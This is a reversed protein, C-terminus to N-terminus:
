RIAPAPSAPDRVVVMVEGPKMLDLDRHAAEEIANPDHKLRDALEALRLNEARLAGLQARLAAIDRHARLRALYGTEGVLANVMLVASSVVIVYTLFRRRRNQIEQRTKPLRRNTGRAPVESATEPADSM